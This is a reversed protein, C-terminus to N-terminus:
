RGTRDRAVFKGAFVLIVTVLLVTPISWVIAPPNWQFRYAVSMAAINIAAGTCVIWLSRRRRYEWFRELILAVIAPTSLIGWLVPGPIEQIRGTAAETYFMYTIFAAAIALGVSLYLLSDKTKQTIM